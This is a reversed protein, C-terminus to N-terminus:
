VCRSTYLLCSRTDDNINEWEEKFQRHWEIAHLSAISTKMAHVGYGQQLLTLTESVIKWIKIWFKINVWQKLSRVIM